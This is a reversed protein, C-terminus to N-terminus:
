RQERYARWSGVGSIDRLGDGAAHVSPRLVVALAASADALEVASLELEPPEAPLFADRVVELPVDYLEGLVAVGGDAVSWLAPFEDGVSYFRYRPATRVEGLFPHAAVTHHISGGRMGDGNLFLPVGMVDDELHIPEPGTRRYRTLEAAAPDAAM